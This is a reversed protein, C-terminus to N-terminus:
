VTRINRDLPKVRLWVQVLMVGIGTMIGGAIQKANLEERLFIWALLAIQIMMSNAIISSEMAQLSRLTINWLTFGLATNIVAMWILYALNTPNIIPLGEILLGLLLM